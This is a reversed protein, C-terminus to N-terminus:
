KITYRYKIRKGYSSKQLLKKVEKIDSIKSKLVVSFRTFSLNFLGKIDSDFLETLHNM